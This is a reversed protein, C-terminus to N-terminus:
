TYTHRNQCKNFSVLIHCYTKDKGISNHLWASELDECPLCFKPDSGEWREGPRWTVGPPGVLACLPVSLVQCWNIVTKTGAMGFDAMFLIVFLPWGSALMASRWRWSLLVSRLKFIQFLGVLDWVLDSHKWTTGPGPYSSPKDSPPPQTGAATIVILNICVRDDNSRMSVTALHQSSTDLVSGIVQKRVFMGLSIHQTIIQLARRM